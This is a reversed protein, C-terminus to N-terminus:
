EQDGWGYRSFFDLELMWRREDLLSHFYCVKQAIINTKIFVDAKRIKSTKINDLSPIVLAEIAEPIDENDISIRPDTHLRELVARLSLSVPHNHVDSYGLYEDPLGDDEDDYVPNPNTLESDNTLLDPLSELVQNVATSLKSQMVRYSMGYRIFMLHKFIPHDSSPLSAGHPTLTILVKRILEGDENHIWRYFANLMEVRRCINAAKRPYM